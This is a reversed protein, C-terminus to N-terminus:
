CRLHLLLFYTDWDGRRLAKGIVGRSVVRVLAFSRGRSFLSHHSHLRGLGRGYNLFHPEECGHQSACCSALFGYFLCLNMGM